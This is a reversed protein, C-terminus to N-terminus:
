NNIKELISKVEIREMCAHDGRHCPKNGFVSCPRCSLKDVPIEIINKIGSIFPSFGIASHTPGWVSIVNSCGCLEAMHMNASDMTIMTSLTSMLALEERFNFLESSIFIRKSDLEQILKMQEMESEGYGFLFIFTDRSNLLCKVLENIKRFPLEKLKNQSFPALGIKKNSQYYNVKESINIKESESIVIGSFLSDSILNQLKYGANLFVKRYRETTHELPNTTSTLKGLLKKKMSRGKDISFVKYGKITFFFSLIRSRLSKHLDIISDFKYENLKLFLMFLGIIGAFDRKANFPLVHVNELNQFVPSFRSNTLIFIQAKPNNRLLERIVPIILVVDGLASFRIILIRM